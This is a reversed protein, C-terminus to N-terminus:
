YALLYPFDQRIITMLKAKKDPDHMFDPAHIDLGYRDNIEIAVIEPITAFKKYGVDRKQTQERDLKAQELFPREDQYIKWYSDGKSGDYEFTGALSNNVTSPAVKWKAM